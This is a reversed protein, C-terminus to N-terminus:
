ILLNMLCRRTFLEAESAYMLEKYTGSVYDLTYVDLNFKIYWRINCIYVSAVCVVVWIHPPCM